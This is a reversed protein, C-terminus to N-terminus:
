NQNTNHSETPSNPRHIVTPPQFEKEAKQMVSVAVWIMAGFFLILQFSIYSYGIIIGAKAKKLGKAKRNKKFLTIAYHGCIIGLIATALGYLGLLISVCSLCLSIIALISPDFSKTQNDNM